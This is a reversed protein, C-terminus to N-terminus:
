VAPTRIIPNNTNNNIGLKEFFAKHRKKADNIIKNYAIIEVHANLNKNYSYYGLEGTLQTYNNNEAYEKIKPTIDCISFCYFRTTNNTLLDRGNPLRVKGDKIRRVYRFLQSTPDESHKDRQPKKFEIVSVERAVNEEDKESFIILDPRKESESNITDSLKNDSSALEHFTLREDILWLNQDEFNLQDTTTKRPMIIDHIIEENTFKGDANLNLKKEFLDIIMKRYIMYGALNDKQFADIKDVIEKYSDIIESVTTVQTKLLNESEKKIQFETKGKYKFLVENIKEDSTNPEIENYIEPCYRPVARLGPNEQSIFKQIRDHKQINIKELYESLYEQAKDKIIEEIDQISLPYDIADLTGKEEPITFKMRSPDVYMDLYPSSVYVSYYFKKVEEDFQMSTGLIKQMPLTKVERNNACLVAKHVQSYTSYFKVHTLTFQQKNKEVNETKINQKVNDFLNNISIIEGGDVLSITPKEDHIMYSFCHELIRQAITSRRKYATPLKRYEEKFGVLKVITKVEKETIENKKQKVGDKLTFEFVRCKKRNEDRYVSEVEVKKFAKLWLFRGIGKGGKELKYRSDSTNFSEYNKNDFGIGNDEIEFGTIIDNDEDIDKGSITKQTIRTVKIIIKGKSLNRNEEIADISNSIAEFLPLLAETKFDPSNIIKGELDTEMKSTM